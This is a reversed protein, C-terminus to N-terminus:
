KPLLMASGAVTEMTWSEKRHGTVRLPLKRHGDTGMIVEQLARRHWSEKCHRAIAMVRSLDRYYVKSKDLGM